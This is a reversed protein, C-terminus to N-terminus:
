PYTIIWNMRNLDDVSLQYRKIYMKYKKITDCPTSNVVSPDLIFLQFYNNYLIPEWGWRQHPVYEDSCSIEVHGLPCQVTTDPYTTGISVSIISTSNNKIIIDNHYIDNRECQTSLLFISLIIYILMKKM